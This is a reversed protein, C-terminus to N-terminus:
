KAHSKQYKNYWIGISKPQADPYKKLVKRITKEKSFGKKACEFTYSKKTGQFIGDETRERKVKPKKMGPVRKRKTVEGTEEDTEAIFGLRLMSPRPTTFRGTQSLQKDYWDDFKDLLLPNPSVNRHHTFWTTLNPITAQICDMFDMGRAICNRQLDRVKMDGAGKLLETMKNRQARKNRIRAM